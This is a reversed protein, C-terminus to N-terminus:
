SHSQVDSHYPAIVQFIAAVWTFTAVYAAGLCVVLPVLGSLFFHWAGIHTFRVIVANSATSVPLLFGLTTAFQAAWMRVFSILRAVDLGGEM